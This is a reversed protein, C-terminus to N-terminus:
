SKNGLKYSNYIEFQSRIANSKENRRFINSQCEDIERAKVNDSLQIDIMRRIEKKLEPDYIPSAVEVRNDLNRTMWDASSIYIKEDDDNGVILIRSHELYKDVISIAEINESLGHIGPLLSCMGRVILQIKVGKKSAEYLKHIMGTDVLNNTKLIIYANKGEKAIKIEKDILSELKKRMYQPSVILHNYSYFKYTNEFYDFVKHVEAAIKKHATLIALDTYVTANGEHFNGTSIGAIMSTKKGNKM